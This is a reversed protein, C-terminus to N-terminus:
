TQFQNQAHADPRFGIGKPVGSPDNEHLIEQWFLVDMFTELDPVPPHQKKALADTLLGLSFRHLLTFAMLTKRFGADLPMGPDYSCLFAELAEKDQGLLGFWLAPWEYPPMAAQGDAWDILSSIKVSGDKVSGDKVLLLHDETLDAHVLVLPEEQFRFDSLFTRIESLVPEDLLGSKSLASISDIRRREIFAMWNGVTVDLLQFSDLPTAHIERVIAGMQRSLSLWNSRELSHRIERLPCGEKFDMIFWPWDIRDHYVGSDIVQPIPIRKGLAAGIEMENRLDARCQPPSIKIVRADDLLFVANTGPYGARVVTVPIGSSRCIERVVPDWLGLDTFIRGWEEWTSIAPLLTGFPEQFPDRRHTM